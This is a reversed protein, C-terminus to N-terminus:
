EGEFGLIWLGLIVYKFSSVYLSVFEENTMCKIDSYQDGLALDRLGMVDVMLKFFGRDGLVVFFFPFLTRQYFDQCFFREFSQLVVRFTLSKSWGFSKVCDDMFFPPSLQRLPYNGYILIFRFEFFSNQVQIFSPKFLSYIQVMWFQVCNISTSLFLPPSYNDNLIILKIIYVQISFFFDQVQIFSLKFFSYIEFMLLLCIFVFRLSTLLCCLYRASLPSTPRMWIGNLHFFHLNPMLFIMIPQCVFLYGWFWVIISVCQLYEDRLIYFICM